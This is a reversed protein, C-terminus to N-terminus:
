EDITSRLFPGPGFRDSVQAVEVSLRGGEAADATRAAAPYTWSSTTVLVERVPTADALIRVLYRERPEDLPVDFGAWSDADVRARRIWTIALDGGMSRIRLHAPAYPRWGAAEFAHVEHVFSPDEYGRAAPGIRWHRAMGRSAPSVTPQVVARDLFVFRSGAPRSPLMFADTGLQGRLRRSLEWTDPGVLVADAFQFLEWEQLTEDGIAAANAGALVAEWSVSALSGGYLRVRLPAGRDVVGPRVAPLDLLTEGIVAPAEFMTNLQYGSDFAADYVAARSPWPEAFVALHPANPDEAGTMLPLDLFVPFVPLPPLFPTLRAPLSTTDSPVYTEPEVRTAEVLQHEGQEVRDVRWRAEDGAFAITDGAGVDLRSPPLAFRVKDRAIRAEALWRETVQRGEGETLALPMETQAVTPDDDGPHVSEASRTEYDGDADVHTLRLRGATSAQPDRITEIAGEIESSIALLPTQVVSDVAGTRSRFVLRGGREIGDFGYALMLPQLAARAGDIEAVIYGRVLGFLDRVDPALAGSRACIETTVDALSRSSIRGTLWHGKDYNFGDSWLDVNGPFQPYPRADWAWVHARDMDVMRGGYVSSVPNNAPDRWFEYMARLYQMQILDDRAGTSYHPYRSESSKPDLFKNPQNTGKDIAACGFETFWVPKSRPVWPTPAAARVGGRREHHPNSWWSVLDKYRFIWPEGYAGDTIPARVQADREGQGSYFWDFGEGGAVNAKLYELNYISGWGADAHDTGDRWDSLPMYNDIGIFDINPDAWLPDLHFFVDGSGDQPQYGYYESWDAAYGIEADPLVARVDAALARLADVAPFGGVGRIRTLGRMESGICFAEVGGAAACLHAQHLIFRRYSFEDPGTYDVTEGDRVFDGAGASGFFAAVEADAAVTGSPSGPRGAAISSTIRGRWPLRPQEGGGYPNPLANGPMQEMLIFPYFVTESGNARLAEIAEIVSQDTPTGGYVPRGDQRPVTEANPRSIGSVRWRMGVGDRDKREVKPRIRCEGARLDDGFWSVVLVTSRWDPAEERLATLSTLIDPRGSPSNVNATRNKGPDDSFHVPTAALAYEGTGPMLAVGRVSRALGVPEDAVQPQEPRMVEFSFQPVRNGYPGVDFDEIVLYALGRYAPVNGTGEIAEMRPDPLQTETGKYVRLDLDGSALEVGDAWVRGVRTIEGECLALALSMTYRYTTTEPGRPRGKGGSSEARETKKHERFRSSWIAQGSVRARGYVQAIPAGESAGTLRFREVQGHEVAQSGSGLISQDIVRGAVAGLARGIATSTVGFMSFGFAGGSAAGVASLVLTAM